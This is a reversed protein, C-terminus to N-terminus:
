VKQSQTLDVAARWQGLHSTWAETQDIQIMLDVRMSGLDHIEESIMQLTKSDPEKSAMLARQLLIKNEIQSDFEELKTKLVRLIHNVSYSPWDILKLNHFVIDTNNM